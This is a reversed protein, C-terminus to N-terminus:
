HETRKKISKKRGRKKKRSGRKSSHRPEQEFELLSGQGINSDPGAAGLSEALPRVQVGKIALAKRLTSAMDDREVRTANWEDNECDSLRHSREGRLITIRGLRLRSNPQIRKGARYPCGRRRIFIIKEPNHHVRRLNCNKRTKTSRRGRSGRLNGSLV